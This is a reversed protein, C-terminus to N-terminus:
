SRRDDIVAFAQHNHISEQSEVSVRLESDEGHTKLALYVDRVVDEVFKPSLYAKETVFKEDPRKLVGYVECSSCAEILSVLEGIPMLRGGQLDVTVISRQNHAGYRSIAKSCPCLTTIPVALSQKVIPSRPTGCVSYGAEVDLTSRAGSVPAIKQIFWPFRVQLSGRLAETRGCLRAFLAPLEDISLRSHLQELEDVLRSMHTGRQDKRVEVSTDFDVVTPMSVDDVDVIVSPLRLGSIGAQDITIGRIEPGAQIDALESLHAPASTM